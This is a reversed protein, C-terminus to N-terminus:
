YFYFNMTHRVQATVLGRKGAMIVSILGLSINFLKWAHGKASFFSGGGCHLCGLSLIAYYLVSWAKDIALTLELAPDFAIAEFSARNL